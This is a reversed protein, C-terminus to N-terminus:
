WLNKSNTNNKNTLVGSLKSILESKSKVNLKQYIKKLHHNVTFPTINLKSAMEKYTLGHMAHHVLEQERKTFLNKIDTQHNSRIASILASVVSPSLYAGHKYSLHISNCIENLSQNKDIFGTAGYRLSKIIVDEAINYSLAVIIANPLLNRLVSLLDSGFCDTNDVDIILVNIYDGEARFNDLVESQKSVLISVKLESFLKLSQKLVLGFFNSGEIIGVKM